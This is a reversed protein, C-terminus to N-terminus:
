YYPGFSEYYTSGNWDRFGNRAYKSWNKEIENKPHYTWQHNQLSKEDDFEIQTKKECQKCFIKTSM